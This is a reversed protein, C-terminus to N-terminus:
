FKRVSLQYSIREQKGVEMGTIKWGDDGRGINLTAEYANVRTHVHGWHEVTGTVRWQAHAAYTDAQSGALSVERLDVQEVHSVAGGQEQMMLGAHIKLYTESLFDGRVSRALADYIVKEDRYDFARYINRLLTEAIRIRTPPDPDKTLVPAIEPLAPLGPNKWAFTPQYQTFRWRQTQAGAFVAARASVVKPNFLDWTLAVQSPMAKPSYSLIVGLRATWASLRRPEAVVAFDKFDVGYFDLQQVVPAVELGDIMMRNHRRFFERLSPLAARQEAVELFNRDKRPVEAWTELTLVPLLIEVRVEASGIYIFAYVAGYSEIGMNRPPANTAGPSAAGVPSRGRAEGTWDFEVTQVDGEGTLAVTPLAEAEAQRVTLQMVSPVFAGGSSGIRQQFTLYDPAKTLPYVLRYMVKTQMLDDVLIGRDPILPPELSGLKGALLQGERDRIIFDRLLLETHKRMGEELNAKSVYNDRDAAYGNLMVFDECMIELGVTVQNRSVTVQATSLSIPHAPAAVATWLGALGLVLRRLSV